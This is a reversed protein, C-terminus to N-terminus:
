IIRFYDVLVCKREWTFSIATTLGERTFTGISFSTYGETQYGLGSYNPGNKIFLSTNLEKAMYSLNRIDLSHISATHCYNQEARKALDVAEKFNQVRVVPLIPMMQESWVLTHEPGTEFFILKVESGVNIGIEQLIDVASQGILDPTMLSHGYPSGRQSFIASELREINEGVIELAGNNSMAQKLQDAVQEVVIIEKECTCPLNHDFSAGLVIDNAASHIDATEDVVVPPNGPGACIARKGSKMAVGVVAPGGTVLLLNIDDHQMLYQASEVTPERICTILNHPGGAKVIAQNLLQITKISVNKARPHVNFVVSNGAALISIVNNIITATPNTSPTISAIVGYPAHEIVTLGHDGSVATPKIIEYGPTKESVLINKIYKSEEDGFQTEDRAMKALERAHLKSQDRVAKILINRQELTQINLELFARRAASVAEDITDFIGYTSNLIEREGITTSASTGGEELERLIKRIIEEMQQETM